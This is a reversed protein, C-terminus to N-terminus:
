PLLACAERALTLLEGAEAETLNDRIVRGCAGDVGASVQAMEAAKGDPEPWPTPWGFAEAYFKGGDSMIAELPHLGAATVSAVHVGGRWERMLNLVHAALGRPSDPRPHARWAAFLPTGPANDVIRSGLEALRAADDEAMSALRDEGYEACSEAFVRAATERSCVKGVAPWAEAAAVPALFGHATAAVEPTTDGLVGLRGAIYLQLPDAFGLDGAKTATPEALMFAGATDYVTRGLERATEPGYNTM